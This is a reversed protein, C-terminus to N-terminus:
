ADVEVFQVDIMHFDRLGTTETALPQARQLKPRTAGNRKVIWEQGLVNVLRWPGGTALLNELDSRQQNDLTRFTLDFRTAQPGSTLVVAKTRPPLPDITLVQEPTQRDYEAVDPQLLQTGDLTQLFWGTSPTTVINSAVWPSSRDGAANLGRARWLTSDTHHPTLYDDFTVKRDILRGALFMSELELLENATLAKRVAAFGVFSGEVLPNSLNWAGGNFIACDAYANFSAGSMDVTGVDFGNDSDWATMEEAASDFVMAAAHRTNTPHTGITISGGTVKSRAVLNGANTLYMVPGDVSATEFSVLRATAVSAVDAVYAVILTVDTDAPTGSFLLTGLGPIILGPDTADNPDTHIKGATVVQLVENTASNSEINRFWNKTGDRGDVWCPTPDVAEGAGPNTEDVGGIDRGPNFEIDITSNAVDEVVVQAVKGNM